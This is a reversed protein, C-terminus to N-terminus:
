DDKVLNFKASIERQEIAQRLNFRKKQTLYGSKECTIEIQVNGSNEFTLGRIDFSETTEYPTTGVYTSNTNKVSPTSSVVRWSVDADQPASIIYWRIITSELATDGAGKVKRNNEQDATEHKTLQDAIAQWNIKSLAQNLAGNLTAAITETASQLIYRANVTTQGICTRRGPELLEYDLVAVARASTNGRMVRFERVNVALTRDTSYDNGVRFGLATVYQSFADRLYDAPNPSIAYEKPLIMRDKGTVESDDVIANTPFSTTLQINLGYTTGNYRPLGTPLNYYLEVPLSKIVTLGRSFSCSSCILVCLLSALISLRKLTKM